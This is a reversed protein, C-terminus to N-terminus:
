ANMFKYSISLIYYSCIIYNRIRAKLFFGYNSPTQSHTIMVIIIKHLIKTFNYFDTVTLDCGMCSLNSMKAPVKYTDPLDYITESTQMLFKCSPRLCWKKQIIVCKGYLIM